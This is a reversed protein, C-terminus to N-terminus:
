PQSTSKTFRTLLSIVKTNDAHIYAATIKFNQRIRGREQKTKKKALKSLQSSESGDLSLEVGVFDLNSYACSGKSDHKTAEECAVHPTELTIFYNRGWHHIYSPVTPLKYLCFTVM